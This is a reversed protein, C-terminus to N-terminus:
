FKLKVKLSPESLGGISFVSLLRRRIEPSVVGDAGVGAGAEVGIVTGTGAGTGTTYSGFFTIFTSALISSGGGEVDVVTLIILRRLIRGDSEASAGLDVNGGIISFAFVITLDM